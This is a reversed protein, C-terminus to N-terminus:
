RPDTPEPGAGADEASHQRGPSRVDPPRGPRPRRRARGHRPGVPSGTTEKPTPGTDGGSPIAVWRAPGGHLLREKQTGPGPADRHCKQRSPGLCSWADTRLIKMRPVVHTPALRYRQSARGASRNAVSVLGSTALPISSWPGGADRGVFPM